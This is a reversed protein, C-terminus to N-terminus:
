FVELEAPTTKVKPRWEINEMCSSLKTSTSTTTNVVKNTDM